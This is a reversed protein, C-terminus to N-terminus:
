FLQKSFNLNLQNPPTLLTRLEIAGARATSQERSPFSRQLTQAMKASDQKDGPPANGSHQWLPRRSGAAGGHLSRHLGLIRGRAMRLLLRTLPHLNPPAALVPPEAKGEPRLRPPCSGAQAGPPRTGEGSSHDQAHITSRKSNTLLKKLPRESQLTVAQLM